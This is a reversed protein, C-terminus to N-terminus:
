SGLFVMIESIFGSLGPLGLAAFFGIMAMVSYRPLLGLLGGYRDLDRHHVREYMVGVLLFMMPSITGHNFMQFVAGGVGEYTLATLGLLVYGMHSVSSYAVLKKWDKQAMAVLAGYVISIVALTALFSGQAVVVDPFLPGAM